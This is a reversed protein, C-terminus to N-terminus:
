RAGGKLALVPHLRSMRWAPYIGSFIGFFMALVFCYGFIRLNLNVDAFQLLFGSSAMARLVLQSGALGLVGGLLSLLINEVLFQGALTISSAGFAKRVGIESARELIRSVNINVLNIAPLLMFWLIALINLAIAWVSSYALDFRTMLEANMETAEKQPIEVSRLRSRFEARVASIDAKSRLLFIGMFGGLLEKKYSDNQATAIPVWIDAFPIERYRSVNAVVGSVRFRQGEVEITEGIASRGGFFRRRTTENIVAVLRGKEADEHSFPSGELFKFKLIQWFEGDTRKLYSQIREGNLYSYAVLPDTFFSTIEVGPLNRAYRDLFGYGPLNNNSYNNGVLSAKFCGLTREQNVEPPHPGFMYDFLSVAVMLVILTFSIGFLSVFTFFKRRLFVKVAMKLYNKLM